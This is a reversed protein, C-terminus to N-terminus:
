KGVHSCWHHLVRIQCHVRTLSSDMNKPSPSSGRPSPRPSLSYPSSSSSTSVM